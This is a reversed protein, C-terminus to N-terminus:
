ASPWFAEMVGAVLVGAAAAAIGRKTSENSFVRKFYSIKDEM